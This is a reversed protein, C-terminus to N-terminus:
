QFFIVRESVFLVFCLHVKLVFADFYFVIILPFCLGNRVICMTKFNNM